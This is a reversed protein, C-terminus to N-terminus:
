SMLDSIPRNVDIRNPTFMACIPGKQVTLDNRDVTGLPVVLMNKDDVPPCTWVTNPYIDRTRLKLYYPMYGDIPNLCFVSFNRGRVEHLPIAQVYEMDSCLISWHFPVILEFVNPAQGIELKISASSFEEIQTLKEFYFDPNKFDAFSLVSYFCESNIVDTNLKQNQENLILM